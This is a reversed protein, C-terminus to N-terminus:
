KPTVEPFLVAWCSPARLTIGLDGMGDLAREDDDIIMFPVDRIDLSRKYTILKDRKYERQSLMNGNPRMLLNEDKIDLNLKELLWRMTADRLNESRGTLIVITYKLAKFREVARASNEIVADQAVLHPQFFGDWDKPKKELFHERHKNNALTGDVDLIVYM